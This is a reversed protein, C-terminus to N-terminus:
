PQEEVAAKTKRWFLVTNWFKKRRDRIYKGKEFGAEYAACRAKKINEHEEDLGALQDQLQKQEALLRAQQKELRNKVPMVGKHYGAQYSDIRLNTLKLAEEELGALQEIVSQLKPELDNLRNEIKRKKRLLRILPKFRTAIPERKWFLFGLVLSLVVVLGIFAFRLFDIDVGPLGSATEDSRLYAFVSLVMLIIIMAPLFIGIIMWKHTRSHGSDEAVSDFLIKLILSSLAPYSVAAVLSEFRPIGLVFEMIRATVFVEALLFLAIKFNYGRLRTRLREIDLATIKEGLKEEEKNWAEDIVALQEQLQDVDHQLDNRKPELKNQLREKEAEVEDRIQNLDDSFTEFHKSGAKKGFKYDKPSIVIKRFM